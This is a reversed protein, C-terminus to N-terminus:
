KEIAFVPFGPESRPVQPPDYGIDIASSIFDLNKLTEYRDTTVLSM